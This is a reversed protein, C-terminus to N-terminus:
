ELPGGAGVLEVDLDFKNNADTFYADTKPQLERRAAEAKAPLADLYANYGRGGNTRSQEGVLPRSPDAPDPTCRQYDSLM